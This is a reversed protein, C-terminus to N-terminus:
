TRQGVVISLVSPTPIIQTLTLGVEQFLARFEDETRERGEAFVMMLIDMVKAPHPDNGPPVVADVVLLRATESMAERCNRLIARCKEDSWDHLIRKLVYADAGAPVTDFFDGGVIECRKRLDASSLYAPREVVQPLDYLVGGVEPYANLIEALFGGQGGGLDAVRRFAAFDYSAVIAPNETTSFNALGRDFWEGADPNKTVYDFFGMNHVHDFGPEGTRVSHDLHSVATWWSGDGTLDGVMQVADRVSGPVNSRLVAAVPTLEFHRASVEVFVGHGALTRLLRYLTDPRTGTATALEDVAKPGNSLLDAIGLKTAVHLSQSVLYSVAMELAIAQPPVPPRVPEEGAGDTTAM